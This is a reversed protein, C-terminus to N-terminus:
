LRDIERSLDELGPVLVPYIERALYIDFHENKKGPLDIHNAQIRLLNKALTTAEDEDQGDVDEEIQKEKWIFYIFSVEPEM